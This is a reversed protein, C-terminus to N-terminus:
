AAAKRTRRPNPPHKAALLPMWRHTRMERRDQRPCRCPLRRRVRGRHAISDDQNRKREVVEGAALDPWRDAEGIRDAGMATHHECEDRTRHRGCQLRGIDQEVRAVCIERARAQSNARGQAQMAPDRNGGRDNLPLQTRQCRVELTLDLLSEASEESYSPKGGTLPKASGSSSGYSWLILRSHRGLNLLRQTHAIPINTRANFAGGVPHAPSPNETARSHGNRSQELVEGVPRGRIIKQLPEGTDAPPLDLSHKAM